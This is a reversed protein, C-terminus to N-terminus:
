TCTTTSPLPDSPTYGNTRPPKSQYLPHSSMVLYDANVIVADDRQCVTAQVVCVSVEEDVKTDM